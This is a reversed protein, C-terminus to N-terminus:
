CLQLGALPPQQHKLQEHLKLWFPIGIEWGVSYLERKCVELPPKTEFGVGSMIDIHPGNGAYHRGLTDGTVRGSEAALLHPIIYTYM